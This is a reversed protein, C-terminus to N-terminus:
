PELVFKSKKKKIRIVNTRSILQCQSNKTYIAQCIVSSSQIICSKELLQIEHVVSKWPIWPNEMSSWICDAWLIFQHRIIKTCNAWNAVMCCKESIKIIVGDWSSHCLNGDFKLTSSVNVYITASLHQHLNSLLKAPISWKVPNIRNFHNRNWAADFQM